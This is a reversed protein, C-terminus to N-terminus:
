GYQSYSSKQRSENLESASAKAMWELLWKSVDSPHGSLYFKFIRACFCALTRACLDSPLFGRNLGGPALAGFNHIFRMEECGKKDQEPLGARIM